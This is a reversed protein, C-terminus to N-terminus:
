QGKGGVAFEPLHYIDGVVEVNSLINHDDALIVDKWGDGYNEPTVLESAMYGRPVIQGKESIFYEAIWLGNRYVVEQLSWEGHLRLAHDGATVPRKFLDGQWIERENKDKAGTYLLRPGIPELGEGIEVRPCVCTPKGWTLTTEEIGGDKFQVFAWRFHGNQCRTPVRFKFEGATETM